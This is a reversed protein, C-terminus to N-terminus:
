TADGPHLQFIRNLALLGCAVANARGGSLPRWSSFPGKAPLKGKQLSQETAVPGARRWRSGLPGPRQGRPVGSPVAQQRTTRRSRKARLGSRTPHGAPLVRANAPEAEPGQQTVPDGRRVERPRQRRLHARALCSVSARAVAGHAASSPRWATGEGGGGVGLLVARPELARPAPLLASRLSSTLEASQTKLGMHAGNPSLATRMQGLLLAADLGLAGQWRSGRSQRQLVTPDWSAFLGVYCTRSPAEPQLNPDSGWMLEPQM